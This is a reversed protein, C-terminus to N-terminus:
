GLHRKVDIDEKISSAMSTIHESQLYTYEGVFIDDPTKVKVVEVSEEWDLRYLEVEIPLGTKWHKSFPLRM